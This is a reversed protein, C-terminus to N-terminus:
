PRDHSLMGNAIYAVETRNRAKLKKMINRVHVKVTSERMNLEYAIIKNAKGRRLAEIVAIQRSTLTGKGAPKSAAAGEAPWSVGVFSTAPVFTGGVRILRMAEVAVALPVSTPIVGRAGAELAKVIQNADEDDSVVVLPVHEASKALLSIQRATEEDELGVGACLVVICIQASAACELFNDATPFSLVRYGSVRQLSIALCERVFARREILVISEADPLAFDGTATVPVGM